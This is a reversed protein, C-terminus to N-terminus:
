NNTIPTSTNNFSFISKPIDISRINNDFSIYLQKLDEDIGNLTKPPSQEDVSTVNVSNGSMEMHKRKVAVSVKPQVKVKQLEDKQNFNFNNKGKLIKDPDIINKNVYTTRKKATANKEADQRENLMFKSIKQPKYENQDYNNQENLNVITTIKNDLVNIAEASASPKHDIDKQKLPDPQTPTEENLVKNVPENAVDESLQDKVQPVIQTNLNFVDVSELENLDLIPQKQSTVKEEKKIIEEVNITTTTEEFPKFMETKKIPQSFSQSMLEDLSLQASMVNINQLTNDENTTLDVDKVDEVQDDNEDEVQDDDNNINEIQAKTVIIDNNYTERNDEEDESDSSSSYESFDKVVVECPRKKSNFVEKKLQRERALVTIPDEKIDEFSKSLADAVSESTKQEFSKIIENTPIPMPTPPPNTSNPNNENAKQINLKSLRLPFKGNRLQNSISDPASNKSSSINEDDDETITNKIKALNRFTSRVMMNRNHEVFRASELRRLQLEREREKKSVISDSVIMEFIDLLIKMPLSFPHNDPLFPKRNECSNMYVDFLTEFRYNELSNIIGVFREDVNFKKILSVVLIAMTYSRKIINITDRLIEELKEIGDDVDEITFDYESMDAKAMFEREEIMNLLMDKYEIPVFDSRFIHIRNYLKSINRVYQQKPKQM